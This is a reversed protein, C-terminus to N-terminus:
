INQRKRQTSLRRIFRPVNGLPSLYLRIILPLFKCIFSGKKNLALCMWYSDGKEYCIRFGSKIYLNIAPTLKKLTSLILFNYKRRQAFDIIRQSIEYGVERGQFESKVVWFCSHFYNYSQVIGGLGALNGDMRVGVVFEANLAYRLPNFNEKEITLSDCFPKIEEFCIGELEM